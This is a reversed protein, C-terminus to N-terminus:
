TSSPRARSSRAWSRTARRRDGEARPRALGAPGVPHRYDTMEIQKGLIGGAANIEEVALHAGDRFNSGAVAGAGSLECVCPLSVTDAAAAPLAHHDHRAPGGRGDLRFPTAEHSGGQGRHRPEAKEVQRAEPRGTTRAPKPRSRSMRARRRPFRLLSSASPPRRWRRDKGILALAVPATCRWRRLRLPPVADALLHRGADGSRPLAPRRPRPPTRLGAAGGLAPLALRLGVHM